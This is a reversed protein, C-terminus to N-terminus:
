LNFLKGDSRYRLSVGLSCNQFAESLMASFMISFLTPALVCGQKVGNTVPFTESAEGDDLVRATMGDHFQRVMLIFRDLCGFKSTIRWLDEHNVTDFAKILDVFITYLERNQESNPSIHLSSMDKSLGNTKPSSIPACASTARPPRKGPVKVTTRLLDIEKGHVNQMYDMAKVIRVKTPLTIDRSKLISDLNAMAKRGPLLHRKIEQSCDGDATIKSGLFIFDTVVEMEEGDIQWSTLPGSAMIKTKKINLKVGVKTSEEMRM